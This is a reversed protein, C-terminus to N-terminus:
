DEESPPAKPEFFKEEIQEAWPFTKWAICVVVGLKFLFPSLWYVFYIVGLGILGLIASIGVTKLKKKDQLLTKIQEKM